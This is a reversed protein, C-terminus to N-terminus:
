NKVEQHQNRTSTVAKLIIDMVILSDLCIPQLVAAVAVIHIATSFMNNLYKTQPSQLRTKLLLLVKLPVLVQTYTAIVVAKHLSQDLFAIVLGLKAPQSVLHSQKLQPLSLLGEM